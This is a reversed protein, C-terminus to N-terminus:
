SRPDGKAGGPRTGHHEIRRLPMGTFMAANCEANRSKPRMTPLRSIPQVRAPGFNPKGSENQYRSFVLLVPVLVICFAALTMENGLAERHLFGVALRTVSSLWVIVGLPTLAILHESSSDAKRNRDPKKTRRAGSGAIQVVTGM